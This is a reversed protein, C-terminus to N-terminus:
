NKYTPPNIVIVASFQRSLDNELRWRLVRCHLYHRNPERMYDCIMDEIKDFIEDETKTQSSTSEMSTLSGSSTLSVSQSSGLSVSSASQSSITRINNNDDGQIVLHQQQQQHNNVQVTSPPTLPNWVHGSGHRQNNEQSNQHAMFPINFNRSRSVITVLCEINIIIASVIDILNNQIM